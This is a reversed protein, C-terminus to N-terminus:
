WRNIIIDLQDSMSKLITEILEEDLDIFVVEIGKQSILLAIEQGIAGCGILGVKQIQGTVKLQKNLSFRDLTISM